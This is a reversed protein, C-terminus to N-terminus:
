RPLAAATAASPKAMIAEVMRQAILDNGIPHVHSSDIWLSARNGDFIHGLYYLREHKSAERELTRYVAAYLTDLAKDQEFTQKMQQEEETLPKNGVSLIPQIFMFASFGYRKAFVDIIERNSLYNKVVLDSLTSADIGFTEYNLVRVPPKPRSTTLKDLLGDVISYSHTNRLWAFRPAPARARRGEVQAAIQEFNEHVDVRGSQYAAYSDNPGDYFVVANPINGLKLQMLLMVVSQTSVYGTEGFNTVCVTGRRRKALGAQLRAAITGWDPSGTGWM